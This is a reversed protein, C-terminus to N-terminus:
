DNDNEKEIKNKLTIVAQYYDKGTECWEAMDNLEKVIDENTM